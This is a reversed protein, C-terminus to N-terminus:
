DHSVDEANAEARKTGQKPLAFAQHVVEQLPNHKSLSIAYVVGRKSDDLPRRRPAPVFPLVKAM